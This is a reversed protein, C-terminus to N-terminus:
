NSEKLVQLRLDKRKIKGSHTMPLADFFCVKDPYQYKALGRRNLFAQLETISFPESGEKLTVCAVTRQGLTEDPESVVAVVEVAPHAACADEVRKPDVKTGGRNIVDDKRCMFVYRGHEDEYLIDGSHFWGEDDWQRSAAEPNNYYGMCFNPGRSLAEGPSGPQVEIGDEDVLKFEIGAVPTGVSTSIVELLDDPRTCLVVFGETWGFMAAVTIGSEEQLRKLIPSPVPAGAYIFLRVSSTDVKTLNPANTLHILHPPAGVLYTPKNEAILKLVRTSSFRDHLLMCGGSVIPMMVGVLMGTQHSIPAMNLVTEGPKFGYISAYARASWLYNAHVHVVGKPAGTTGSTFAIVWVDLPGPRNDKLQEDSLRIDRKSMEDFSLTDEQVAAANGQLIIHRLLPLAEKLDSALGFLDEGRYSDSVIWARAGSKELSYLLDNRGLDVQLLVSAAGIRGIGFMAIVYDLTNQLQIAVKDGKRIGLEYLSAAFSEVEAWLELYTLSRKEDKHVLDPYSRVRSELVDVFSEHTWLGQDFYAKVRENNLQMGSFTLM